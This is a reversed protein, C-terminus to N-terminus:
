STCITKSHFGCCFISYALPYPGQKSSFKLVLLSAVTINIWLLFQVLCITTRIKAPADNFHEIWNVLFLIYGSELNQRWRGNIANHANLSIGLNKCCTSGYIFCHSFYNAKHVCCLPYVIKWVKLSFVIPFLLRSAFLGVGLSSFVTFFVGSIFLDRKKEVVKVTRILGKAGFTM